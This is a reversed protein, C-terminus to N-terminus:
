QADRALLKLTSNEMSSQRLTGGALGPCGQRPQTRLWLAERKLVLKESSQEGSSQKATECLREVQVQAPFGAM